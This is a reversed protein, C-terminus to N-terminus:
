TLILSAVRWSCGPLNRRGPMSAATTPWGICADGSTRDWPFTYTASVPLWRLTVGFILILVIATVFEPIATLSLGTITIARDAFRGRRLGSLTGGFISLPVVLVFAVAALKLSNVLAPGLLDAVPLKYQLSEGLDGHLFSTFWHWYQVVLPRDLGAAKNFSDVDAPSAFPGLVNRGVDGPLVQAAAFVIVSLIFLTVLALAFRKLLFRAIPHRRGFLEPGGCRSRRGPM